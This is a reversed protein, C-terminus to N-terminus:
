MKYSWARSSFNLKHWLMALNQPPPTGAGRGTYFIAQALTNSFKPPLPNQLVGVM